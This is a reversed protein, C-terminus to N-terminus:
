ISKLFRRIWSPHCRSGVVEHKALSHTELSYQLLFHEPLWNMERRQERLVPVFGKIRSKLLDIAKHVDPGADWIVVAPLQWRQAELLAHALLTVLVDHRANEQEIFVRIRQIFLCQKPFDHHWYLWATDNYICGKHHPSRDLLRSGIFEARKHLWSVLDTTPLVALTSHDHNFEDDRAETILATVDRLCLTDIDEERLLKYEKLNKDPILYDYTSTSDVPLIMAPSPQPNWGCRKYFEEKNSYLMSAFADGPGDLWQSLSRLMMKGYGQGRFDPYTVVAAICYGNRRRSGNGDTELLERQITKCTALIERNETRKCLCWTRVGQNAALPQKRMSKERELFEVPSLPGGFASAALADCKIQQDATVEQFLLDNPDIPQVTNMSASRHGCSTTRSCRPAVASTDCLPLEASFHSPSHRNDPFSIVPLIIAENALGNDSKTQCIFYGYRKM